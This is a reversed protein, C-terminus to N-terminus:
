ARRWVTMSLPPLDIRMRHPFGRWGHPEAAIEAQQSYGSGGFARDDSDLIKRYCGELPAGILYANRPVPTCNFAFLFATDNEWSSRRRLFAFVSEDANDADLWQFGGGDCDTAYLEVHTRYLRNLAKNWDALGRHHGDQLLAWDLQEYHRWEHWQGFEGGMFMLKKGPHATMYGLLLRYNAKKQWDDGPAKGLLSRKEHVVEDHSLPLMFRESFAYTSSFTILRHEHRRHVPDLAFYRLTDNMWGMNWKFDFGLGGLHPARTVGGFATSEEAITLAGPHYDHLAQNTQKLFEIAELNERGGHRNPIWEGDKRAYDLYLMSAVADVRLGDIHFQEAWYLASALLFNRVENRGYNFVNTGWDPHEGQRPDAHEYLATGDFRALGHADRPFHGPVWDMLVGLGAQHCRDVFRRFDRPTGHRATPAYYGTVQYGWSDDLPHEAVGLLEIHTYHFEQAHSILQDALEHWTLFGPVRTPHRRWSGPHVEYALIPARQPDWCRRQELWAADGWEYDDLAAVICASEPRLQMQMAYPDIKHLAAGNPAYLLYKYLAGLGIHPVFTEWVGSAGLPTLPHRGGDWDNFDGIVSVRQANPAWVAFRVGREGDLLDVHAGLKRYIRHHSGEAFLHLDFETLAPTSETM